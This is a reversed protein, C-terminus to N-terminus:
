LSFAVLVASRRIDETVSFEVLTIDNGESEPRDDVRVGKWDLRFSQDRVKLTDGPRNMIDELYSLSHEPTAIQEQMKELEQEVEALKKGAKRYEERNKPDPSAFMEMMHNRGGLIKKVGKLYERKERLEAKRSRLTTINEMAVTALAELGRHMVKDKTRSLDTDISVVRHDHFSVARQRVDRMIQDGTKQYGFIAQEHSVMTLLATVERVTRKDKFAQVEPSIRIVEELEDPSAFLSKVLPNAHYGKRSLEVPGPVANILSTCYDMSDIIPDRLVNHYRKAQRIVPDAVEVVRETIQHLMKEQTKHEKYNQWTDKFWRGIQIGGDQESM